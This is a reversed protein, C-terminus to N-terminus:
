GEDKMRGSSPNRKKTACPPKAAPPRVPALQLLRKAERVLPTRNGGHIKKLRPGLLKRIEGARNQQERLQALHVAARLELWRADLAAAVTMAELFAKEASAFDGPTASLYLLGKLDAIHLIWLAHALFGFHQPAALQAGTRLWGGLGRELLELGAVQGLRVRAWGEIMAGLALWYTFGQERCFAAFEPMDRLVEEPEDRWYHALQIFHRAFILSHPHKIRLAHARGQRVWALGEDPRGSLLLALGGWTLAAVKIDLTRVPADGAAPHHRALARRFCPIAQRFDGLYFAITGRSLWANDLIPLWKASKALRMMEDAVERAPGFEARATHFGHLVGLVLYKERSKGSTRCLERARAYAEQVEASGYGHLMVSARGRLTVLALERQHRVRLDELAPLLALGHDVHAVAEVNASRRESHEAAELWLEVAEAARGAETYHHAVLEPQDKRTGPFSKELLRAIEEHYRRRKRRLMTQYAEAQILAHRFQLTGAPLGGRCVLLGADILRRLEGALSSEDLSCVARLMEYPFEGGIVSALQVVERHRTTRDLRATLLARLTDPIALQPVSSRGTAPGSDAEVIMRTMEEVFLPVGDAKRVLQRIMEPPLDQDNALNGILGIVEGDSLRDLTVTAAEPWATHIELRATAVLMVRPPLGQHLLFELAELTSPDLWHWDEIALVLPRQGASAALFRPLWAILRQRVSVPSLVAQRAGTRSPLNLFAALLAVTEERPFALREVFREVKDLHDRASDEREFGLQTQVLALLPHFASGQAGEGGAMALWPVNESALLRRFEELLRSKGIGPEGRILFATGAGDQTRKWEASLRAFELSRGTFPSHFSRRAGAVAGDIEEVVEYASVPEAIGKFSMAGLPRCRIAGRVLRWTDASIVATGLTAAGQLRAALNPVKGVAISEERRGGSGVEGLLLLGTHLGIRVALETHGERRLDVNLTDISRLIELAARVALVASDERAKPYGFYALMGDGHYQAIFGGLRSVVEGTADHYRKLLEAYDEPDLASSLTTSGALDCFMVTLHRREAQLEGTAPV